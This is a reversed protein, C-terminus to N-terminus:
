KSSVAQQTAGSCLMCRCLSEQAIEYRTSMRMHAHRFGAPGGDDLKALLLM